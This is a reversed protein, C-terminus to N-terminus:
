VDPRTYTVEIRRKTSHIFRIEVGQSKFTATLIKLRKSLAIPNPPWETQRHIVRPPVRKELTKLLETPTGIWHGDSLSAAFNLLTMGLTNEQLTELMSARVNESYIKQLKGAPLGIVKELAANWRSFSTLRELHIVEVSPEQALVKASLDLLGRFIFPLQQNLDHTLDTEERRTDAGLELLQINVSRSAFDPEKGFPHIGNLVVLSNVPLLSEEADTYLKRGGLSGSTSMVCLADSWDTSFSRVNDYILLYQHMSSIVMDKIQKPFLQVGASNNDMLVRLISRSLLSKGVGQEGKICLLPYATTGRPHTLGFTIYALILYKHEETMNLFPFLAKWDGTEAPIPSPQTSDSRLFLTQSGENIVRAVGDALLVRRGDSTGLDVEIHGSKTRGVRFRINMPGDVVAAHAYLHELIEKIDDTRLLDGNQHAAIRLWKKVWKGMLPHGIRNRGDKPSVHVKENQDLGIDLHKLAHDIYREAKSSFQQDTTDTM